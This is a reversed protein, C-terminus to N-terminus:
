LFNQLVSSKPVKHPGKPLEPVGFLATNHILRRSFKEVIIQSQIELPM